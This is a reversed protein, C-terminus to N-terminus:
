EVGGNEEAAAEEDPILWVVHDRNVLVFDAEYLQSGQLSFVRADTVALFKEASDFENKFREGIRVHVNGQIRHLLTQIVTPIPDKTIVPTFYKGKEDFRTDM